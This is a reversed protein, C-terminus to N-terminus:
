NVHVTTGSKAKVFRMLREQQTGCSKSPVAQDRSTSTDVTWVKMGHCWM